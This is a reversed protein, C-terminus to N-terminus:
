VGINWVVDGISSSGPKLGMQLLARSWTVPTKWMINSHSLHDQYGMQLGFRPSSRGILRSVLAEDCMFDDGNQHGVDDRIVGKM